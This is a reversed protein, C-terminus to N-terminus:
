FAHESREETGIGVLPDGTGIARGTVVFLVNGDTPSLLEQGPRGLMDTVLGLRQGRRVSQGATVEPLWGGNLESTLWAMSVSKPETPTPASGSVMGLHEMVREVGEVLLTIDGENREGCGGAEAIIAPVGAASAAAFTTGKGSGEVQYSLGFARALEASRPDGAAHISFPELAEVLDGGHLDVLADAASFLETLLWDALQESYTGRPDGPFVRNLNKGDVPNVYVSRGFYAAPNVVPLVVLTGSLDEVSTEAARYAADISAYEGGHVGAMVILRPGPSRGRAILCPLEVGPDFPARLMAGRSTGAPISLLEQFSTREIARSADNV